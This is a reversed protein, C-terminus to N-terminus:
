ENVQFHIPIIIKIAVPAGDKQAPKFKWKKVAALAAEDFRPDTSKSVSCESVAGTVDIMVKVAVVGDLGERKLSLPYEPPPTKLPVPKVDFAPGDALVALPTALLVVLWAVFSPKLILRRFFTM